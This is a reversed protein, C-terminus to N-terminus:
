LAFNNMIKWEAPFLNNARRGINKVLGLPFGKHSVAIYGAPIEEPLTLVNRGLYSLAAPLDLVVVPISERDFDQSLVQRSSPIATDGKLSALETGASLINVGAKKLLSYTPFLSQPIGFIREGIREQILDKDKLFIQQSSIIAKPKSNKINLSRGIGSEEARRRFAAVFLGECRERHPMFHRAPMVPELRLEREIWEANEENETRNFTCTSYILLGGPALCKVANELIERQMSACQAILNKSWQSRAVPERRMMGEGSCPADVAVVDFYGELAGFKEAPSNTVIVNPDGWKDLNEKLIKSRGRDYENAVLIYRGELANLMATSKGGPAACMDLVKLERDGIEPALSRLISEYVMSAAEQVYYAGAHLLPDRVFDPRRDLYFGSECWEVPSVGYVSFSQSSEGADKVKKRNFRISVSPTDALSSVLSLAETEGLLARMEEIFGEPLAGGGTEIRKNRKKSM